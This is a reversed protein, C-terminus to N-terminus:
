SPAKAEFGKEAPKPHFAQLTPIAHPRHPSKLDM